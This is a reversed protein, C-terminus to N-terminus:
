RNGWRITLTPPILSPDSGVESTRFYKGSHMAKDAEYLALRLPQGSGHVDTLAQSVDWTRAVGPVGPYTTPDVWIGPYNELAPPSNNWSITSPDWDQSIRYVQIYSPLAEDPRSSGFQYMTLTASLIVKDAPLADLPFTIYYRSFCPFDAVDRQNQIVAVTSKEGENYVAEGWDEWDDLGAGCTTYGGVSADEVTYTSGQRIELLGAQASSPPTFSPYGFTIHSFSNVDDSAFDAPWTKSSIAGNPMYDLDFVQTATRWTTQANPAGALGLDRFLITYTATWGRDDQNNTNLGGGRWITVSKFPLNVKVWNGNIREFAAQYNARNEGNSLQADFRLLREGQPGGPFSLYLSTSDWKGAVDGSAQTNYWLKRDYTSIEVVLSQQNYGLRINSANDRSNVKGFWFVAMEGYRDAIIDTIDLFPVHVTTSNTGGSAVRGNSVFPLFTAQGTQASVPPLKASSPFLALCCVVLAILVQRLPQQRRGTGENKFQEKSQFGGMQKRFYVKM